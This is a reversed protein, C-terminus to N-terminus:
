FSRSDEAYPCFIVKWVMRPVFLGLPIFEIVLPFPSRRHANVEKERRILYNSPVPEGMLYTFSGILLAIWAFFKNGSRVRKADSVGVGHYATVEERTATHQASTFRVDLLSAFSNYQLWRGVITSRSRIPMQIPVSWSVCFPNTATNRCTANYQRHFCAQPSKEAKGEGDKGRISCFNILTVFDLQQKIKLFHFFQCCGGLM